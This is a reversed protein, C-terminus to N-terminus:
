PSWCAAIAEAAHLHHAGLRVVVRRLPVRLDIAARHDHGLARRLARLPPAACDGGLIALHARLRARETRIAAAVAVRPRLGALADSLRDLQRSVDIAADLRDREAGAPNLREVGGRSPLLGAHRRPWLVADVRGLISAVPLFPDDWAVSDCSSPADDGIVLVHGAPVPPFTRADDPPRASVFTVPAGDVLLWGVTSRAREGAIAVVRKVFLGGAGCTRVASPTARFLVVDGRAPGSAAYAGRDYVVRDGVGLTPAMGASAIDIAAFRRSTAPDTLPRLDGGVLRVVEEAAPPAQASAPAAALLSAACAAAALGPVRRSLRSGSSGGTSRTRSTM